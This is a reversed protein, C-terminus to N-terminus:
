RQVTNASTNLMQHNASYQIFFDDNWHSVSPYGDADVPPSNLFREFGNGTNASMAACNDDVWQEWAADESATININNM